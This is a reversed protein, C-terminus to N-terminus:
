VQRVESLCAAADAQYLEVGLEFSLLELAWGMNQVDPLVTACGGNVRVHVYQGIQFVITPEGSVSDFLNRVEDLQASTLTSDTQLQLGVYHVLTTGPM